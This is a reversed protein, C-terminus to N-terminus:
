SDKLAIITSYNQGSSAPLVPVCQSSTRTSRARRSNATFCGAFGVKGVKSFEVGIGIAQLFHVSYWSAPNGLAVRAAARASVLFSEGPM